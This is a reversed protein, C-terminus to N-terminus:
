ADTVEHMDKAVQRATALLRKETRQILRLLKVNHRQLETARDLVTSLQRYDGAELWAQAQQTLDRVRRENEAVAHDLRELRVDLKLEKYRDALARAANRRAPPPLTEVVHQLQEIRAIHGRRM